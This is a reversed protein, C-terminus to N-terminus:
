CIYIKKKNIKLKYYHYNLLYKYNDFDITFRYPCKFTTLTFDKDLNFLIYNMLCTNHIPYYNENPNNIYNEYVIATDDITEQKDNFLEELCFLCNFKEFKKINDGKKIITYPMNCINWGLNIYEFILEIAILLYITKKKYIDEIINDKIIDKDEEPIYDYNLGTNNSLKIKKENKDLNKYMILCHSLFLPAKYPPLEYENIDIRFDIIDNVRIDYGHNHNIYKIKCKQMMDLMKQFDNMDNFHINIVDDIRIRDLTEINYDIDWFNDFSLNLDYFINSYHKNLLMNQIYSGWIIGNNNLAIEIINSITDALQETLFM